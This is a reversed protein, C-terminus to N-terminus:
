KIEKLEQKLKNFKRRNSYSKMSFHHIISILDETLETEYSKNEVNSTVIITVNYQKCLMEFLDFGFRALRDKNEVIITEIKNNTIDDILKIFNKRNTFNMGSKIDEYQKSLCYGNSIAYNYLRETQSILDNKQKPLSVRSYTVIERKPYKEKILAYIDEDNYDYHNKNIKTYRIKGSNVYNNITRNTVKLIKKVEKIKM